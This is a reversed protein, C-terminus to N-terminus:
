VVTRREHCGGLAWCKLVSKDIQIVKKTLPKTVAGLLNVNALSSATSSGTQAQLHETLWGTLHYMYGTCVEITLLVLVSLWNFCDHVTAGAFAREFQDREAVQSFSVLTNTLSTGINAGMIMPIAYQVELIGSSVMSVIVSTCTSSSQVLV